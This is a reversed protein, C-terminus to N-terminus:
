KANEKDQGSGLYTAAISDADLESPPGAFVIRGKHLVYVLDAIELVKKVYQEVVLLGAGSGALRRLFDFIETVLRPALGMSVEDLLIHTPRSIWTRALALMQQQGGSLTGAVQDLRDGLQPFAEVGVDVPDAVSGKAHLRLNDRVSLSPFVARGEPIYCVGCQVRASPPMATVDVGDILVSGSSPQHLGALVNLLTSKGAGNAGVLATVRGAPAVLSVRRLADIGAYGATIERAEVSPAPIQAM